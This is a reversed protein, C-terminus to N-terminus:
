IDIANKQFCSYVVWKPFKEPYSGVIYIFYSFAFFILLIVGYLHLFFSFGERKHAISDAFTLHTANESSLNYIIYYPDAKKPTYHRTWVSFTTNGNCDAFFQDAESLYEKYGYIHFSDEHQPSTLTISNENLEWSTFTVLYHDCNTENIPGFSVFEVVIASGLIFVLIMIFIALYEGPNYVHACFGGRETQLCTQEPINNNNHLKRYQTSVAIIFAAGDKSMLNFTIKKDHAFLASEMPNRINRYWGTIQDFTFHRRMGILNFQTIGDDDYTIYCNRWGLMLLMSLLVFAGFGITSGISADDIIGFWTIVLFFLGALFGIWLLQNSLYVSKETSSTRRKLVTFCNASLLIHALCLSIFITWNAM